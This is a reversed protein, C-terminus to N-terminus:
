EKEVGLTKLLKSLSKEYKDPSTFDTEGSLAMKRCNIDKFDLVGTEGKLRVFDFDKPFIHEGKEYLERFDQYLIFVNKDDNTSQFICRKEGDEDPIKLPPHPCKYLIEKEQILNLYESEYPFKPM